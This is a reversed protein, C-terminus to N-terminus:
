CFNTSSIPFLPGHAGELDGPLVIDRKKNFFAYLGHDKNIPFQEHWLKEREQESVPKPLEKYLKESPLPKRTGTGRM